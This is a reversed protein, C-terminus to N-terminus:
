IFDPTRGLCLLHLVQADEDAAQPLFEFGIWGTRRMDQSFEPDAVPQLQWWFLADLLMLGPHQALTPLGFHFTLQRVMRGMCFPYNASGLVDTGPNWRVMRSRLQNQRHRSAQRFLATSDATRPPDSTGNRDLACAHNPESADILERYSPALPYLNSGSQLRRTYSHRLYRTPHGARCGHIFSQSIAALRDPGDQQVVTKSPKRRLRAM